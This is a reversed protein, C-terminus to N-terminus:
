QCASQVAGASVAGSGLEAARTLSEQSIAAMNVLTQAGSGFIRIMLMKANGQPDLCGISLLTLTRDRQSDTIANWDGEDVADLLDAGQVCDMWRSRYATNLDNAVGHADLGAYDRGLPDNNIEDCLIPNGASVVSSFVLALVMLLYKM